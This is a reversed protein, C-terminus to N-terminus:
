MFGVTYDETVDIFSDLTYTVYGDNAGQVWSGMQTGADSAWPNRVRITGAELDIGVVTYLHSPVWNEGVDFGSMTWITSVTIAHGADLYAKMTAAINDDDVDYEQNSIGLADFADAGFGGEIDGYEGGFHIAAAKEVVAVWLSGEAGGRAYALRSNDDVQVPLDNDVRYYHRVGDEFLMVAYTGDGLDTVHSRIREPNQLAVASLTALFWCDGLAGQRVDDEDPGFSSFLPNDDLNIEANSYEAEESDTVAPDIFNTGTSDKSIGNAYSSIRHVAKIDYEADEATVVETSGYDAWFQDHGTGGDLNDYLGGGISVLTDDGHEGVLTDNGSNGYLRDDDNGGDLHDDGADGYLVDDGYGGVLSDNGAGGRVTDNGSRGQLLNINSSGTIVDNGAGGWVTEIDSHANDGEGSTGDNAVDDLSITQAATRASYDITDWGYGGNIDDAGSGGDLLDDGFGGDLDDAGGNGLIEDNGYGGSLTDTSEGGVLLDDGDGAVLYNGWGGGGSLTDHGNGASLYDDGSYGHMWDDDEGGYLVDRYSGGHLSDNGASGYLTANGYTAAYIIDNGDAGDITDLGAGGSTALNGYLFDNRAGGRVSDNGLGGYVEMPEQVTADGKISDNGGYGHIVVKSIAYTALVSGQTSGYVHHYTSYNKAVGNLVVTLTSGSQSLTIVDAAETGYINLPSYTTNSAMYRRNELTEFLSM